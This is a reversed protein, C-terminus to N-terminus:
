LFSNIIKFPSLNNSFLYIEPVPKQPPSFSFYFSVLCFPLVIASPRLGGLGAAVSSCICSTNRKYASFTGVAWILSIVPNDSCCTIRLNDSERFLISVNNSVSCSGSFLCFIASKKFDISGWLFGPDLLTLATSVAM